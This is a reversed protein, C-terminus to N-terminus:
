GAAPRPQSNARRRLLLLTVVVGAVSLVSGLAAAGIVLGRRWRRAAERQRRARELLEQGLHNVFAVPPEVAVMTGKLREAVKLLPRLRAEEQVSPFPGVDAHGSLREAHASLLEAARREDM